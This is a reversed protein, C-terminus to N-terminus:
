RFDTRRLETIRTEYYIPITTWQLNYCVLFIKRLRNVERKKERENKRRKKSWEGFVQFLNCLDIGEARGIKAFASM